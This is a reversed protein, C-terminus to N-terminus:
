VQDAEVRGFERMGLNCKPFCKNMSAGGEDVSEIARWHGQRLRGKSGHGGAESRRGRDLPSKVGLEPRNLVARRRGVRWLVSTLKVEAEDSVSLSRRGM